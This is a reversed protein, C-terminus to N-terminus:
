VLIFEFFTELSHIWNSLIIIRCYILSVKILRRVFYGVFGFYYNYKMNFLGGIYEVIAYMKWWIRRFYKSNEMIWIKSSVWKRKNHKFIWCLLVIFDLIKFCFISCYLFSIGIPCYNHWHIYKIQANRQQHCHNTCRDNERM